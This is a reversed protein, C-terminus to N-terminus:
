RRRDSLAERVCWTLCREAVHRPDSDGVPARILWADRTVEVMRGWAKDEWTDWSGRFHKGDVAVMLEQM